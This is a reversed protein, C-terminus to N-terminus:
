ALFVFWGTPRTPLIDPPGSWPSLTWRPACSRYYDTEALAFGPLCDGKRWGGADWLTMIWCSASLCQRRAQCPATQSAIWLQCGSVQRLSLVIWSETVWVPCCAARGCFLLGSWKLILRLSLLAAALRISQTSSKTGSLNWSRTFSKYM